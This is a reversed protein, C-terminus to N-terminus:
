PEVVDDGPLGSSECNGSEVRTPAGNVLKWTSTDKWDCFYDAECTMQTTYSSCESRKRIEKAM